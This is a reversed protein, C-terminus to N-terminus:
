EGLMRMLRTKFVVDRCVEDSELICMAELGRLYKSATNEGFAQM